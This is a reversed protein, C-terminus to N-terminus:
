QMTKQQETENGSGEHWEDVEPLPCKMRGLTRYNFNIRMQM